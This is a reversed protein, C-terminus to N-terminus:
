LQNNRIWTKYKDLKNSFFTAAIMIIFPMFPIHFRAEGHGALLLIATGIIIVSIPIAFSVSISHRLAMISGLISLALLIYYYILNCVTLWQVANYNPFSHALTRMDIEGYMYESEKKNPLFACFNVNDSIYTKLLKKPMQRIYEKPNKAIWEITRRQWISDKQIANYADAKTYHEDNEPSNDVSYQLLAMWGTKAQYICYGTRLYSLYSICAIVLLYGCLINLSAKKKKAIFQYIITSLLFVIGMPRIWNAFAMIMGGTVNQRKLAALIGLLILFTFPLESLVSTSEGYNAPYAVYLLLTIFATREKFIINAIRYVLWASCGKMLSYVCLLPTVSGFLKLSLAVLNIAGVNWIFPLDHIQSAVPYPENMQICKKALLIYGNSDPYPTYGLAYLIIFQLLTFIVITTVIILQRNSNQM